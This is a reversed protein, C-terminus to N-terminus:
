RRGGTKALAKTSQSSSLNGRGKQFETTRKKKWSEVEELTDKAKKHMAEVEVFDPIAADFEKDLKIREAKVARAKNFQGGWFVAWLLLAM